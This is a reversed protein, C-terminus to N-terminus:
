RWISPRGTLRNLQQRRLYAVLQRDHIQPVGRLYGSAFGTLLAAAGVVYPRAFLRRACKAAVFLPHYGSIWNARGNKVLNRWQGDASGTPKHQVVFPNPFSRTIFGRMHAKVEDLTDWGPAPPLGGIAEWCARRYVKTAGRVHFRPQRELMLGKTTIDYVDGGAIGLRQVQGFYAFLRQFYHQGFSLDGDLKVLYEWPMQEAARLGEYFAEVVGGGPKRCGRDVRKIVQIWDHQAAYRRAVAGTDDGSGDDVIVWRSPRLTQAVMSKITKPLNAEENRVPTVVVYRQMDMM